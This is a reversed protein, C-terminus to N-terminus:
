DRVGLDSAVILFSRKTAEQDVEPSLEIGLPDKFTLNKFTTYHWPLFAKVEDLMIREDMEKVIAFVYPKHLNVNYKKMIKEQFATELRCYDPMHMKLPGVVDGLYAEAADHLLAARAVEKGYIKLALRALQISHQAVSYNVNTPLAGGFRNIKTLHHAIDDIRITLKDVTNPDVRVGSHMVHFSM